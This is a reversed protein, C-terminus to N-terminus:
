GGEVIVLDGVAMTERIAKAAQYTASSYCAQAAQVSEFEIVVTRPKMDGELLTQSGGRVIFRAGYEKLAPAAATKYNEYGDVDDIRNHVIWYGKPM